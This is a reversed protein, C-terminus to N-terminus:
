LDRREKVSRILGHLMQQVKSLSEELNALEEPTGLLRVQRSIEVQTDLETTFGAAMYLFRLFENNGQRAAGEAIDSAICVSARRMQSVLGM